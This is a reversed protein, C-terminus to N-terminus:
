CKKARYSGYNKAIEIMREARNFSANAPYECGTALIFGGGEAMADINNRCQSDWEEDTGLFASAPTVCGILTTIDGYKNKCEYFDECDDPPYLFSIAAPKMAEIQADFYINQGCNHVMTLCAKETVVESLEKVFESEMEVWMKKSMITGSAFLTDFMIADVGTDCLAAVYEKLTENIEKEAAKVADPDDYIDMFMAEQNRLMSLIGLPGFVFAIIPKKGKLEKVLRHCVDIHMMMRESKRYDVRKIKAYDDLSKIVCDSYDPHAAENEPYILKQGWADCEISLDILTVVCDIDFQETSKILADACVEANTSWERYTAGVLKRTIGSLIPYVPVRDAEKHSLAAIIREYSNM